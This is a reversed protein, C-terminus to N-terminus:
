VKAIRAEKEYFGQEKRHMNRASIVRVKNQRLTFVIFLTRSKKTTSILIYRNEKDSHLKDPQSFIQETAFAEECEESSIKHKLWIKTKNAEDWEFELPQPLDIIDM